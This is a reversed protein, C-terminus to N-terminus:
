RKARRGRITGTSKAPEPAALDVRHVYGDDKLYDDLVRCIEAVKAADELVYPLSREIGKKPQSCIIKYKGEM